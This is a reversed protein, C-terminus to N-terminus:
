STSQLSSMREGPKACAPLVTCGAFRTAQFTARIIKAAKAILQPRRAEPLLDTKNLIVIIRDTAIEGLVICEATQAQVACAYSSQISMM